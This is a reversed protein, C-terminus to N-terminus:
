KFVPEGPDRGRPDRFRSDEERNRRRASVASVRRLWGRRMEPAAGPSVVGESGAESPGSRCNMAAVCAMSMAIIADIKKSTKDKAIRWGRPSEIAVAQLAQRRLDESQYLRLNKGRLLEWLGQGMGVQNSQTQPYEEIPLGESELKTITQHLQYPDCLIKEVRFRGCLERLYAEITAEIDLPDEPTPQWIRHCVLALKGEEFTVAVVASSDHKTSADVGVYIPEDTGLVYPSRDKDVCADWAEGTIFESGPPTWRNQHLRLYNSPRLTARQEQYYDRTQWPCRPVHDWYIVTRTFAHGWVPLKEHLKKGYGGKFEECGVNKRYLDWLLESEGEFGAYTTVFRISNKRTPVPTLEEWLRRSRESTYAWLEDWSTLGHNSGAEGSYDSPIAKIRTGNSLHIERAFCEASAFLPPNNRVLGVIDSFVRCQAQELDNAVILIENPSEQTYAWWTSVLANLITKGSKKPQSWIVTRYVFQGDPRLPFMAKLVDRQHPLLQFPEGRENQHILDEIFVVPNRRYADLRSAVTQDPSPEPPLPDM